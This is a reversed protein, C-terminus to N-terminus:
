LQYIPPHPKGLVLLAFRSETIAHFLEDVHVHNRTVHRCGDISQRDSIGKSQNISIRDGNKTGQVERLITWITSALQEVVHPYRTRFEVEARM